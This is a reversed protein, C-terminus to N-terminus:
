RDIGNTPRHLDYGMMRDLAASLAKRLMDRHGGKASWGFEALVASIPKDQLCVRDILARDTILRAGEGRASPRIRRVAMAVGNGIRSQLLAIDRGERLFADMFGGGSGGARDFSQCKVGGKDHSECLSRYYRAMGVQAPSFPPIFRDGDQGRRGFAARAHEEMVDFVDANRIASRPRDEGRGQYGAHRATGVSGPVMEIPRFVQYAGRAPAAPIDPGCIPPVVSAAKIAAVRGAEGMAAFDAMDVTAPCLQAIDRHDARGLDLEKSGDSLMKHGNAM